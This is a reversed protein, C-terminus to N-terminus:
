KTPFKTAVLQGMSFANCAIPQLWIPSFLGILQPREKSRYQLYLGFYNTLNNLQLM